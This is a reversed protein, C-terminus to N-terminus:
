IEWVYQFFGRYDEPCRGERDLDSSLLEQICILLILLELAVTPIWETM